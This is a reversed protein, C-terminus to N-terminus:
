CDVIGVRNQIEAAVKHRPAQARKITRAACYVQGACEIGTTGHQHQVGRSTWPDQDITARQAVCDDVGAATSQEIGYTACQVSYRDVAIEVQIGDVADVDCDCVSQHQVACGRNAAVMGRAGEVGRQGKGTSLGEAAISGHNKPAM